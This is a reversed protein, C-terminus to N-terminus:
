INKYEKLKVTIKFGFLFIILSKKIKNKDISFSLIKKKIDNECKIIELVRIKYNPGYNKYLLCARHQGDIINNYENICIINSKIYGNENFSNILKKYTEVSHENFQNNLDLYKLYELYNDEEGQLYRYVPSQPIKYNHWGDKTYLFCNLEKLKIQKEKCHYISLSDKINSNFWKKDFNYKKNLKSIKKKNLPKFFVKIASKYFIIKYKKLSNIFLKYFGYFKSYGLESLKNLEIRLNRYHIHFHGEKQKEIQLRNNFFTENPLDFVKILEKYSYDNYNFNKIEDNDIQKLLNLIYLFEEKSFELRLNRYHLHINECLEITFRNNLSPKKIDKKKLIVDIRGM